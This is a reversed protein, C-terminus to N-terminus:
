KGGKRQKELNRELIEEHRRLTEVMNSLQIHAVMKARDRVPISMFEHYPINLEKAISLMSYTDNTEVDLATGFLEKRHNRMAENEQTILKMM